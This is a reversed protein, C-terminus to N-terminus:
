FSLFHILTSRFLAREYLDDSQLSIKHGKSLLVDIFPLLQKEYEKMSEMPLVGPWGNNSITLRRNKTSVELPIHTYEEADVEFVYKELTGTPLGEIAKVQMPEVSTDYPDATLDLIIADKKLDGILENPIIYQSFDSRRTSDILLDTTKFIDKLLPIHKTM